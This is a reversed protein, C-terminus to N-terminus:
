AKGVAEEVYPVSKMVAGAARVHDVAALEARAADREDIAQVVRAFEALSEEARGPFTLTTARLQAIRGQLGQVLQDLLENQAGVFLVSYFEYQAALIEASNAM